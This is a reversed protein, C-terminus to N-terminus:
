RYPKAAAQRMISLDYITLMQLQKQHLVQTQMMEQLREGVQLTITLVLRPM